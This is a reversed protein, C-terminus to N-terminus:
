VTDTLTTEDGIGITETMKEVDTSGATLVIVTGM